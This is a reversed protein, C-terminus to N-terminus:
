VLRGWNFSVHHDKAPKAHVHGNRGAHVHGNRGAHVHGNREAHVHGNRGVTTSTGTSTENTQMRVVSGRGLEKEPHWRGMRKMTAMKANFGRVATLHTIATNESYPLHGFIRRPAIAIGDHKGLPWFSYREDTRTWPCRVKLVQKRSWLLNMQQRFVQSENLTNWHPGHPNHTNKAEYKATSGLWTPQDIVASLIADNLLTQDDSNAYFRPGKAFSVIHAVAEPHNQMLQVRWATDDLIRLARGSGPRAFIMGANAIGRDAMVIISSREMSRLMPFPDKEWITDSDAQLVHHGLRVLEAMYHKKVYYFRFRWDWFRDNVVSKSPPLNLVRSSWYCPGALRQCSDWSDAMVLVHKRLGVSAINALTSNTMLLSTNDPGTALLILESHANVLSRAATALVGPAELDTALLGSM